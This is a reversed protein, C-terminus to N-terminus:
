DPIVQEVRGAAKKLKGYFAILALTFILGAIGYLIDGIIVGIIPLDRLQAEQLASFGFNIVSAPLFIVVCLVLLVWLVRWTRGKVIIRSRRLADRYRLDESALVVGFFVTRLQYIIMPILLPLTLFLLGCSQLFSPLVIPLASSTGTEFFTGLASLIPSVSARCEQSGLLFLIAPIIALLTWELIVISRLLSTFFLPFILRASERRVSRFSTRSRGARNVVMRRGVLLVSAFGWYTVVVFIIGALVYGVNGIQEISLAESEPWYETMVDMLVMPLVLFWLLVHFLAPQKWLFTWADGLLRLPNTSSLSKGMCFRYYPFFGM